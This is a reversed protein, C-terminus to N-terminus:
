NIKYNQSKKLDLKKKIESRVESLVANIQQDTWNKKKLAIKIEEEKIGKKLYNSVFAKVAEYDKPNKFFSKASKRKLLGEKFFLGFYVILGIIILTFIIVLIRPLNNGIELKVIPNKQININLEDLNTPVIITKTDIAKLDSGELLYIIDENDTFKIINDSIKNNESTFIKNINANSLLIEYIENGKGKPIIKKIYLYNEESNEYKIIINRSEGKINFEKQIKVVKQKSEEDTVIEDSIEELDIKEPTFTSSSVIINVPLQKLLEDLNENANSTIFSKESDTKNGILLSSLAFNIDTLNTKLSIIKDSLGLINVTDKLQSNGQEIKSEFENIKNLLLDIKKNIGLSSSNIFISLKSTSYFNASDIITLTINYQGEKIYSHKIQEGKKILSGDNLDWELSIISRNLETKTGLATLTIEENIGPRLNSIGIFGSPGKVTNFKITNSTLNIGSELSVSITNDLRIYTPSILNEFKNLPIKIEQGTTNIMEFSQKIPFFSNISTPGSDLDIYLLKINSIQLKGPNESTIKIPILLCSDDCGSKSLYNILSTKDIELDKTLSSVSTEYLARQVLIAYDLIQSPIANYFGQVIAPDNEAGIQYYEKDLDEEQSSASICAFYDKEENIEKDLECNALEQNLILKCCKMESCDIAELPYESIVAYLEAGDNIKKIRSDIKYKSSPKLSIKECYVDRSKRIGKWVTPTVSGFYSSNAYEFKGTLQGKYTLDTTNDNGVDIALTPYNDGINIGNVSISFNRIQSVDISSLRSGASSFDIAIELKSGPSDFTFEKSISSQQSTKEYKGPLIQLNQPLFNKISQYYDQNNIKFNLNANSNIPSTLNLFVFGDFQQSTAVDKRTLNLEINNAFVLNSLILLVLIFIGKKVVEM